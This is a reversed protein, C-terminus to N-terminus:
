QLAPWLREPVDFSHIAVFPLDRAQRAVHSVGKLSRFLTTRRDDAKSSEPITLM